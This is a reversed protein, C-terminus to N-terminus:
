IPVLFSLHLEAHRCHLQEWEQRTLVGLLPSPMRRDETQLRAVASRFQALADAWETPGPVFHDAAAKPLEFGASMPKTLFRKKMVKGFLRIFWPARHEFGDISGVMFITLHKLM